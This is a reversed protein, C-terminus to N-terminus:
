QPTGDPNRGWGEKIKEAVDLAIAARVKFAAARRNAEVLAQDGLEPLDEKRFKKRERKANDLLEQCRDDCDRAYQEVMLVIQQREWKMKSTILKQLAATREDLEETTMDESYGMSEAKRNLASPLDDKHILKGKADLIGENTFEKEKPPPLIGDPRVAPTIALGGKQISASMVGDGAAGEARALKAIAHINAITKPEGM